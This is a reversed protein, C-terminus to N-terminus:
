LADTVTSRCTVAIPLPSESRLTPLHHILPPVIRPCSKAVISSISQLNFSNDGSQGWARKRCERRTWVSDALASCGGLFGTASHWCLEAAHAGDLWPLKGVGFYSLWMRETAEVEKEIRVELEKESQRTTLPLNGAETGGIQTGMDFSKGAPTARVDQLAQTGMAQDLLDGVGGLAVQGLETTADKDGHQDDVLVKDM